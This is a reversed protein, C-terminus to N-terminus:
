CMLLYESGDSRRTFCRRPKLCRHAIVVKVFHRESTKTDIDAKVLESDFRDGIVALRGGSLTGVASRFYNSARLAASGESWTEMPCTM